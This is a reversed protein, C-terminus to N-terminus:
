FEKSYLATLGYRETLFLQGKGTVRATIKPHSFGCSDVYPKNEIVKFYKSNIFKQYPINSNKMLIADERMMRFFTVVGYGLARGMDGLSITGDCTGVAEAFEVKPKDTEIKVQYSQNEILLLQKAEVENAWARAAAVPDNFNPLALAVQQELEQWRRNVAMRMKADYGTVLTLAHDKDLLIESIYARGDLKVTVGQFQQHVLIPYGLQECMNKIDRIVHGHSKGTLEAVELSSMTTKVTTINELANM